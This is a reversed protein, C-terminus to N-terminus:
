VLFTRLASEGESSKCQPPFRPSETALIRVKSDSSMGANESRNAGGPSVGGVESSVSREGVLRTCLV